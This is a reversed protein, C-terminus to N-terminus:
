LQLGITISGRKQFKNREEAAFDLSSRPSTDLRRYCTIVYTEGSMIVLSPDTVYARRLGRYSISMRHDAVLHPPTFLYYAVQLWKAMDLHSLGVTSFLPSYAQLEKSRLNLQLGSAKPVREKILRGELVQTTRVEKRLGPRALWGANNGYQTESEPLPM